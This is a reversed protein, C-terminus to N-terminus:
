STSKQVDFFGKPKRQIYKDLAYRVADWGHNFKDVIDATVKKTMKDIKYSYMRSEKQMAVCRTHIVIEVFGKLITIGDEVSGAWKDAGSIKFGKGKVHSITAPQSCDAKIDYKRVPMRKKDEEEPYEDAEIADLWAEIEDLEVGVEQKDREIYLRKRKVHKLVKGSALKPPEEIEEIWLKVYALPDQSFGWDLGQYPGHWHEQVEFDRVSCKGAFIIADAIGVALGMYEHEYALINTEKLYEAEEIFKEGLWEAPVDLYTSHHVYRGAKKIESEENVWAQPDNPPNYSYFEVFAPGGRLASQKVSRIESMDAFEALEEAWLFKIYGKKMKLSKIKVPTDLGKFIIKQGTPIYVMAAPSTTVRWLDSVNLVDTAWQLQALVSDKITEGVKRLVLANAAPDDMIGDIIAIAIFSSKTSGRGGKLWFESYLPGEEGDDAPTKRGKVRNYVKFFPKAIVDTIKVDDYDTDITSPFTM